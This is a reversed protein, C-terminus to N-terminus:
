NKARFIKEKNQTIAVTKELLKILRYKKDNYKHKPSKEKKREQLFAYM